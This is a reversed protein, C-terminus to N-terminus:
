QGLGLEGDLMRFMDDDTASEVDFGEENKEQGTTWRGRLVDLRGAIQRHLREDDVTTEDLVRELRDLEALLAAPGTPEEAVMIPLLHDVLEAPTPYDFLLAAPLRQGIEDGIRNRFEIAILSDFGLDQFRRNPLLETADGHGLVSAAHRRILELVQEPRDAPAAAALAAVFGGGTPAAAAMARHNRTRILNHLLAPVQGAARLAALDLKVPVVAGEGAGDFLALGEAPALPLVGSRRMRALDAEALEETMGAGQGWPGWALSVGSWGRARRHVALADLFANGAAYNAQGAAGLVGAVSSFVVFHEVDGVLEHLYWAADVKPRLVRDLREPTLSELVGDDLVGAAHVVGTVPYRELVGALASRDAVDCAVVGVRAGGGELEAVLEGVGVAASGRRSLLLLERVGCEAVLHRAVLAGLGGTGGTILVRGGGSWLRREGVGERVLRAAFAEGGRVVVQPEGTVVPDGEGEVDVLWFRGPSESQASRVLGWVVAAAPDAGSVVGRTVFVVRSDPERVLELVRGALVHASEVVDGDGVLEVFRVGDVGVAPVSTSWEVRFLSDVRGFQDATVARLTLADVSLVCAGTGDAAVVSVTDGDVGLRVRLATAGAAHLTVGEWAFPLRSLEGGGAVGLAHLVADFLAPHVGFQGSVGEPLEVEAFLVGDDARWVSRLGRFSSGYGFGLDLVRDYFGDLSLSEAGVPPWVGVDAVSGAGRGLVGVAHRTWSGDVGEPRSFFGVRGGGDVSVQLEVGGREPLVLPAVMTLEEIRELGVEDGARLALEVFGTGPFLVQGHVVHDGLWPQARLSLRGSLVVGDGDALVVVSSLLPHGVSSLVVDLPEPWFRERQFAYTPLDVRRAGSGAFFAGWDVSVGHAHLVGLASVASMEEDRGRRLVPVTTVEAVDQIMASLTGDPGLELFTGVGSDVMGRVADGFRVAERVHRVWYEPNVPDGSMLRLVPECFELGGVVEAFEELMPDMLPSHFAHSVSLRRCKWGLEVAREAVGEVGEVDGSVVVSGPGNVVAVCVGGSLVGVVDAESASVALMAGGVPLGDMLRARARVLRCADGLSLVGAVHAAVVEGLSHGAVVEPRVGWSEVLRFLAVELAFLAPQAWGTRSLEVGDGGWMVERVDGGLEVMVADFAGAFVPFREYLGRGMGLRQSGQGTFVVGLRGDGVVSEVVSSVLEGRTRGVLVARHEFASRSTALSYGLDLPHGASGVVRSVQERLAAATKGAVVWPVVIDAPEVEVPSVPYQELITHVNTGSIGFSSVGARRPRGVVPWVSAEAALTVAGASWDVHSSPRDVHLTRPVVGHRMAMVMKIVGAVGAAAQTHGINSKVSGLLLPTERGRGYAALLAQAEIPDGLATGTGHGEVVDVESPELGAGALAQRIVRQQSPGNPATLGNSAGDQNVASGRVVALVEHGNRVADSLREVVLMGVGESWGVGDASDAYSRCRGDASMGRQRSFEVFLEPTSLVTVGGALALDCDGSRLAQAASHLAVLSSSCATDVTVAPGELGLSYAVRGSAVSASSGNGRFGEFEAGTLLDSYDGYMVGAFVGTRSGRLSVPDVGVRELAEWSTELLLRQQADTALAERPSMGFFEADFDAADYLFGGSRTYSTGTHEADPHYLADLDWGRDNPFGDVADIGDIVLRWLDEPSRVGGPYRCAMGVIVVPDDSVPPLVGARVSPEEVTGILEDLIHDALVACTPYDFVLTASLRLGTVAALGNRLEVATLSDLGLEQFSRVPDVSASAEYGLVAAVRGRVLDLVLDNREGVTLGVLRHVLGGAEGTRAVARHNRTRILNHLLAPVQGAARLAALDLKVPVVAGEGAGDFLALGEAPALPLVGSRRMRALDAEALEETMGAGQGWPGWALSVGSWGRARRHVALADLFANGAAYNAQGAAGLVGAVSSFVVFHEVDGVLEHLYWAADVKPRLVRDLREPTLSELVGDDLVGAAHVVGTVPYRELVGALASRDAVDCAVVGVRAGGGELEAVLEGVGVAASGRRSLLLLERVGCEAVLHRAVLAGLGGTGGTILVRGGGSWLRREGVGERVLRAAFAEGGRVVVQPEGTVVPDGEGEVDVLWFRGPSESQASRVLGWVVAAAPDAGSVVGRTVFVVRSDPERVLELVRGALVHASEVVDGDGVLEVFRVGDVGVAPVSTSWEVRFLSDVRGFQDATVARLTLADVSLVCAGTGDAAVVSVTDGDVGLRVRLATAGAAHLTVGEWAFPLRSLEGGGAVGLAHLVADFLAPHVGFQGSVGEPLEVEAFLVGDDARWVSRLGRFSSGYGFGLDLVRDYFGDLSLSEAGVPPWVGVDAVSGAGRGLVGVAHRTWSGDVGEPRSFFGVRGGGDVSVQLEVGGREPLVLPAVMTLEEIRELGVEDGARLALEVFGTGPFLVQGHVVHDGLWPQARLSLRGSLVVGDGDALVVVSSLLPHGVSSLVVDLPEPWFRERQFAYTPLDVRRAGSGAFFAGWDVSVGHAHLVGLASVASMEEDRGRRLVPVTTVEAVDQIMASLTGDPGLELFTGVGSDVMGRVADGFRVAERVHRVWYEPNVPDGSMLRLVPECFELGGVVEAFEELMPDMLPSHFAHSVSLRRCKWGLEVAREAVGEVGEVDGSVVVSGPGNVVAVCVGGSLVGVVDAESASVALMAGGVPLGDMLRARARVLRCADGLSLVGAVHAAVVEGLSHGAVVEPRVGWSEVLRFLAVELAFLAPQAWGTRSLEVGDGGWMVERVDGGLEVMVADFAGAFVPFREYLGRGMGLRQSGQGTFVVGLRGDGVVSEVVSSVLEGRTRGVSVLRFDFRSRLMLSYAVDLPRASVEALRGFQERVAVASRGSVLWPVVVDSPESEVAEVVPAQELITHANTGSIGFSSVGARRPRGVVPWVVSETALDVDGSEWDVHSSPRDVHLTRPVVGHRMAMVMKIVGAVGAAAQTHGINSKVSGLLLPTERGRGYAALLAQAEIPDGLATGTGHGEVVDVESPELGAGALAQRIVRQQSPGNPATLGNSAGDQNVASGRVVALVEHGNRVADSLREVVLMGVGESWGVGDASDAYSRCRGDASMGRQRSFDIFLNPTSLVTVGGALALDCDGSRLAQAAWHLAVLSSSCATDVTVAPGEFGFTYAVRGSVLSPASGNGRYGEFEPTNLLESYDSYMVGAFVGTRSGRLSVPDVGVRELAEWSTELLLRQQADTALAERPSMGFFEADFDAADHLFGAERAYSTGLHDPDPDYLGELDWGRNVPFSSVADVEDTALRWLDEPSRVGGPYRCAMGVIVVPDDSVPPLVAVPTLTQEVGLLEDLLHDALVACTPYDFVLTASLRLGTVAALGNRLEVATLSDLGLEQFSRVPDVSASAEYGLVAAVRGRVLDLVVETRDAEPLASLSRALGDAAEGANVAIRRGRTPVLGRLLAPIEGRARLAALDLLVPSVVAEDTVSLAADFLAMGQEVTLPPVGERALRARDADTLGATMGTEPAWAGWALSLGPLGHARRHAALADLFANGAAYNGQGASGLIGAVSSFLVFADLDATLEHLHWAGDAKVRLVAALREPTLSDIVGDDLVGAAHVVARLPHEAPVGGLATALAERDEVDCALVTATAGLEALDAVLEAVGDAAPGRRSLLLLHRVGREAALHRALAAGLGGTGGTILVTGDADWDTGAAPATLRALRAARVEGDRVRVQPEDVGLVAGLPLPGHDTDVLVFRGPNETQASRVLGCLAAATLDAGDVVFVLRTGDAAHSALRHQLLGLVREALDHTGVLVDGDAALPVVVADAAADGLSALDAATSVMVGASRLRDAVGSPDDGLVVATVPEDVARVPTSWDIRYLADTSPGIQDATVERFVLSDVTAVPNGAVDAVTITVGNAPNGTLKVRLAAAGAAHLTVGEWAFPLVSRHADGTLSTAHLVADLLAPHLGYAACQDATDGPLAVEAYVEHGRRWAARLGRFTPGYGFGLGGLREYFGDLAVAEAGAPPWESLDATTVESAALVGFAHQTWHGEHHEPRSFVGFASGDVRVQIHVAGNEPLVLPVALTLEDIRDLGVEDGARLALEVFGTGPFLVQGHVVHDALWPVSRVSLRGTLVTAEAGALAVAAGLLPHEVSALGANSVDGTVGTRVPWFRERQFAYTPLDVRRAGSGAFFAGWDVSVGHAHLVGLASVASMEEDRGRRLVPVTTVEAVDQIMASLTGDPGLELFTGVGSDVMGRVADGFRVAERVHRVWYEPNVPDGSMLRLVPECFELGGVVEAFEELMPDMLPSHFAHSVSLRRCKWGLEVAREAVGEVGEVDGSVVVSGPGNVVAVCVGGSLVGVVDAESASVALMAGGVPLGDMLRARARVLRCADGLSLVGAVHAAVVEGLSHGAVVEPRVGWSEVLRFLAVELAFLAPQAWGTRSLEVGDGGWMVERVDGGLEVMVADFAGAFVPFREYLGRGMGLRQSGQGTFVVGLRGDGVVSEVVSSVLEGRTRGVLVARHEFASRSTALSYGLDLPHGASGVVRSVQERLAAATKGAVVWPVVIDAPEVEVPSVPYQELITHVNTGSIGFSSVGARRPRGVVPWVSAEAALTVAGASWDVHSSPRDVHLTRPVVGHRMAMVMKIVGAVGAAAQTHGINSKVSGLLLPTERGRGYAALLAQAEIPDGLATGTGHGEVVDVESPELGAGALAQRIVRQQSPGNPATLGNSAGDQNVASGRVVALVEHGNRVADSLREVVLMGVGESWGTGDADEAFAKCRGDPALGGQRSFEVFLWPTTMLTVGGVLALSCEGGRLAQTAWHLAVLSSSCATDVTVAPGELGLAYSLRGSLVSAALGTGTYGQRGAESGVLVGGYDQGNTGVFVGASGGRLSLPDIGARELAEWSTELLLRQQPDMAMAERPSVEFFEADFGAIDHLFGGLQTASHDPRDGALADLDWGRDAPFPGIADRGETLLAWLAEPSDIGDPFRCAMGVIAIPEDTIAAAPATVTTVPADLLETLLLEALAAPTPYDYLLTAPLSLGTVAVLRNRLEVSTLSDFGLKSFERDPVVGGPLSHLVAAVARRVVDAVRALRQDEDLATLEAALGSAAVATSEAFRRAEPLASLLPRRPRPTLLTALVDPHRVDLVTLTPEPAVVAQEFVSLALQPDLAAAGVGAASAAMGDGAWAGWALSTGPLGLAHRRQAIADLVANAAAYNAQGPNGASGAASSFLAFVSLDHDRTLEDLVLASTAKARFVTEFQQASLGTLVGDELVGAAHVVGTLPEDDPIAALVAAMADRDATDAAVLDVEVGSAALEDRLETAGPATDGRRSVLVLRAVGREALRRAVRAGLAGTGGTILVTGTPTWERADGAPAPTLRRGLAFGGNRIAVEEEGAPHALLAALRTLAAEDPEAPLDVVGGWGVPHELAAVRALGWVGAHEPHEVADDEVAAVAGRTVAWIPATSGLGTLARILTATAVLGAPDEALLSLVGAFGAGQAISLQAALTDADAIAPTNVRIAGPGAAGAVRSVWTEDADEPVVVLWTGRPTGTVAGTLPTWTERYRVADLDRETRRRRRWAALAPVVGSLEEGTLGLGAALGDLDESEIADWFETDVPDTAVPEGDTPEPWYWHHQFAYTPLDARAARLPGFFAPWDVAVGDAHLAGLATVVSEEEPLDKRLVPVTTVAAMGQIMASLTGDPGLELFTGVGSDVMGRVADGFRVAERVHRVWYEPNVPDGSMLRLVPECFELGGVVEAFEELMPDMLPSHFAHSVSLRRCKWGLEVAREAVGEVGEVDGSVVVSGPGNVVAVCVGGSLVGVVDAESASVALMAGGVPLGDMLRARARVLRCADGLSLVGAVHAAVVEGLSHGAVVEPRVGWSEVLRFLAVELAFLAPQAWGTRSLEVGDGGWMVERVDGGLEVMVADFAGAFVPFREYLGRGMGLRQSGQGTFVVGLRGDGVVSGSGQWATLRGVLDAGDRGVFVARHELHARGAALTLGVDAPHAGAALGVALREVQARLAVPSHGSLVWPVVADDPVAVRPEIVPAQELITHANTGSIGFSSVGARRPRGVVPWASAEAALTVAGASWDVHSSPTGAHLSKPVVGHRMAMVMKIVGAVGAAAQTHGINSKVSGLLLPTERDRGYTALLAQAEIPDGLATGTGHGEVVDVESAKLGASALALKIVRQQSPGNPATLGNSAGDQNVASGRVVALVEHGNRVADSLRELVLMGVGEAWGTGDASDSFAKCRGDESLGRQRSFEVFTSPTSMVTVGGALALTCDGNRLAQAALHLTVLSSSCATDVTVAPGELGLSYAVRGSAVSPLSGNTRYGEFGDDALLERYDSYMVGAYVGVRSGRLSVPDVGARELAEWSTELLLRQQADTAMAERPSMGFFEADFNGADHLFGGSRAYSTGLHDPDADYLADLDWGRDAPFKTIADTGDVVLQWLDEPSRVGGPYRCAMGVVAIPERGKLELEEVRQRATRLDVTVRRM